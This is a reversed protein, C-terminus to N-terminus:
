QPCASVNWVCRFHLPHCLLPHQIHPRRDPRHQGWGRPGCIGGRHSLLLVNLGLTKESTLHSSFHTQVLTNFYHEINCVCMTWQKFYPIFHILRLGPSVCCNFQRLVGLIPADAPFGTFCYQLHALRPKFSFIIGEPVYNIARISRGYDDVCHERSFCFWTIFFWSKETPSGCTPWQPEFDVTLWRSGILFIWSKEPQARITWSDCQSSILGIYDIHAQGSFNLM